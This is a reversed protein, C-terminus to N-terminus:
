GLEYMKEAQVLLPLAETTRERSAAIIGLLNLVDQVSNLFRIKLNDKLKNFLRLSIKLYREGQTTEEAEFYNRGLRYYVLANALLVVHTSTNPSTLHPQLEILPQTLLALLIERAEYKHKFPEEEPSNMFHLREAEEMDAQYKTYLFMSLKPDMIESLFFPEVPNPGDDVKIPGLNKLSSPHDISAEDFTELNNSVVKVKTETTEKLTNEFVPHKFDLTSFVDDAPNEM